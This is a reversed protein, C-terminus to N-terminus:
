LKKLVIKETQKKVVEAFFSKLEQYSEAEIIAKNIELTVSLQIQKGNNSALYKLSGKDESMPISVNEPMKEVAYGDPITIMILYKDQNPYGFDVPYERNEQKFPNETLAFFLLPSFYMKDGIGDIGNAYKFAFTEIIPKDLESKNSFDYDSIEIGNYKKELREIQTEKALNGYRERFSYANYDFYQEKIKGEITGDSKITALLNVIDKSIMKPMLDVEASTGDNKIMRGFWNLDRIPLINPLANKSTADFLITENELTVATIVYNFKTRNPFMAIGNDRTSILVPKADYGAIKLIATLMLNIEAVNGTKEQYAAEVGKRTYYGYKGNWNMRNKVFEFLKNIKERDTAVNATLLKVDNLFYNYKNLEAGFDKEEFVSKTVSEWTTAIQKPKENSYRITQLEQEIKGLYNESNNVYSEEILAPVDSVIYSSSIQNYTLTRTAKSLDVKEEYSQSTQEMKEKKQIEVFGTKMAKYIYYEPIETLYEAYNVPIAYQYQFDPLIGLNESKLNYKLEIISGVKVNPFTISKFKWLDNYKEVFKGESTVRIKDIKGNELNYTFASTIDLFDDEIKKDSFDDTMKEYGVYYPIEFNAWNLGEKKYIKIKIFFETNSIFANKSEIYKFTTKAKKFLVAAVASTDKPHFKETLEEKTVNGLNHKQSYGFHPFAFLVTFLLVLKKM